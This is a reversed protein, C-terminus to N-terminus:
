IDCGKIPPDLIKKEKKFIEKPKTSLADNIKDAVYPIPWPVIKTDIGVHGVASLTVKRCPPALVAVAASNTMTLVHVVDLYAVSSMGVAGFGFGLRPVQVGLVLGSVGPSMASSSKVEPEEGTITSESKTSPGTAHIGGSGNFAFSGNFTMTSHNGALFVNVLFDAGLQIVFPLGGIPFPVNFAIPLNMVPVKIAGNGPKGFRGIFSIDATGHVQKFQAMANEINGGKMDLFGSVAFNDMDVKARFRVDLNDKAIEFLKKALGGLEALRKKKEEAEMKRKQAENRIKLQEKIKELEVSRKEQYPKTLKDIQAQLTLPFGYSDVPVPPPKPGEYNPNNRAAQDAQLQAVDGQYKSDLSELDKTLNDAVKQAEREEKKAEKEEEAAEKFKKAIEEKGEKETEKTEGEEENAAELTLTVGNSRTKYALSYEFGKATGTYGGKLPGVDAMTADEDADEDADNKDANRANPPNAAPQNTNLRVLSIGAHPRIAATQASRDHPQYGIYYDAVSVPSDFAINASTLAEGLPVAQTHVVTVDDEITVRDVKRLAIDWIWLISGAKITAVVPESSAFRYTIGDRSISRLSRIAQEKSVPVTAPNWVVDFKTPKIEKVTQLYSRIAAPDEGTFLQQAVALTSGTSSQTAPNGTSGPTESSNRSRCAALALALAGAVVLGSRLRDRM